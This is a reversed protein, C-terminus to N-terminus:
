VSVRTRMSRCGALAPGQRCSSRLSYVSDFPGSGPRREVGRPANASLRELIHFVTEVDDPAGAAVALEECTAGAAGNEGLARMVSKQLDLVEAAAKKGAEVGPQHYANVNILSAYLGVAREYLAILMGLSRASVDPITLTLSPRGSEFLAQRTGLFFGDLFDGSTAGPAVELSAGPRDCLVRLFTVFFDPTCAPM